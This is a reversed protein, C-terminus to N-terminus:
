KKFYPFLLIYLAKRQEVTLESIMSKLKNELEKSDDISDKGIEKSYMIYRPTTGELKSFFESTSIDLEECIKILLTFSLEQNGNEIRSLSPHSLKLRKAFESMSIDKDIRLEKILKGVMKNNM